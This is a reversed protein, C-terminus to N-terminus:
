QGTKASATLQDLANSWTQVWDPLAPSALGVNGTADLLGSVPVSGKRASWFMGRIVVVAALKGDRRYLRHEMFAWKEGWGLLRSDIHIREFLKLQKIFRGTADGIIPMTGDRLAVKLCGTRYFWDVRGLDALTFVRGNNVHRNLDLDNPMVRTIVRTTDLARAKRGRSQFFLVLFLRLFLSM